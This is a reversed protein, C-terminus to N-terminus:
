APMAGGIGFSPFEQQLEELVQGAADSNGSFSFITLKLVRLRGTRPLKALKDALEAAVERAWEDKISKLEFISANLAKIWVLFSKQVSSLEYGLRELNAIAAYVFLDSATEDFEILAEPDKDAHKFFNKPKRMLDAIEKRKEPRIAHLLETQAGIVRRHKSLHETIELAAAALTHVAIVSGGEVMLLIAADIQEKAATLKNITRKM